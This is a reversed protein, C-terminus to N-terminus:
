RWRAGNRRELERFAAMVAIGRVEPALLKRIARTEGPDLTLEERAVVEGGLVSRDQQYLSMFDANEFDDRTRRDPATWTTDRHGPRAHRM